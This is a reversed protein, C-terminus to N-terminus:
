RHRSGPMPGEHEEQWRRMHEVLEDEAILPAGADRMRQVIRDHERPHEIIFELSEWKLCVWSVMDGYDVLVYQGSRDEWLFSYPHEADCNTDM